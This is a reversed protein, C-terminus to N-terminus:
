IRSPWRDGGHLHRVCAARRSPGAEVLLPSDFMAAPSIVRENLPVRSGYREALKQRVPTSSLDFSSLAAPEAIRIGLGREYAKWVLESCYVRDDSWEFYPDYPRGELALAAKELSRLAGPRDLISADRLRKVVYRGGDGRAIWDALSTFRVTAIAELVAPKGSRFLILGMHSYPSHTALQIARSQDSRSTQFVIDGPRVDPAALAAGISALLLSLLVIRLKM